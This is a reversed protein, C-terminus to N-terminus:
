LQPHMILGDRALSDVAAVGDELRKYNSIVKQTHGIFEILLNVFERNDLLSVYSSKFHSQGTKRIRSGALPQITSRDIYRNLFLSLQQDVFSETLIYRRVSSFLRIM